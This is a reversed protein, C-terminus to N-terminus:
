SKFFLNWYAGPHMELSQIGRLVPWWNSFLAPIFGTAALLGAIGFRPTLIFAAACVAAGNILAPWVFPNRNETIVLTAYLSHHMALLLLLMLAALAPPDLLATNADLRHLLPTGFAFLCAALLVFTPIARRVNRAFLMAIERIEGRARLQNLHAVSAQVWVSSLVVILNGIQLSLGYAATVKLGLTAACILPTSANVLFYGVSVSTTRWATPWILNLVNESSHGEPLGGAFQKFAGRSLLRTSLDMGVYGLVFAWLGAGLVLALAGVVFYVMWALALIQQSERVRGIGLLLGPWRGNWLALSLGAFFVIGLPIRAMVAAGGFQPLKSAVFGGILGLLIPVIALWRYMLRASASIDALLERNPESRGGVEGVPREVAEVGLGLLRRAGAWAYGTARAISDAFGLELLAVLAAVAQLVFWAGLEYADLWILMLPLLLAASAARLATAVFSWTARSRLMRVLLPETTKQLNKLRQPHVFFLRAQHEPRRTM